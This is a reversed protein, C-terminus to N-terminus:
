THLKGLFLEEFFMENIEVYKTKRYAKLWNVVEFWYAMHHKYILDFYYADDLNFLDDLMVEVVRDLQKSLLRIEKEALRKQQRNTPKQKLIFMKMNNM